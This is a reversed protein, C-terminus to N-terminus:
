GANGDLAGNDSLFTEELSRALRALREAEDARGPLRDRALVARVLLNLSQLLPRPNAPREALARYLLVRLLAVEDDLGPTAAAADLLAQGAADLADRYFNPRQGAPRCRDAPEGTGPCEVGNM